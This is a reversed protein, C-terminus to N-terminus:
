EKAPFLGPWEDPRIMVDCFFQKKQVVPRLIASWGEELGVQRNGEDNNRLFANIKGSHGVALVNTDPNQKSRKWLEDALNNFDGFRPKFDDSPDVKKKFLVLLSATDTTRKWPSAVAHEIEMNRNLIEGSNYAKKLGDTTLPIWQDDKCHERDKEFHRFLLVFGKRTKLGDQLAKQQVKSLNSWSPCANELWSENEAALSTASHLTLFCAGLMLVYCLQKLFFLPNM